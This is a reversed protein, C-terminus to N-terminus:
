CDAESLLYKLSHGRLYLLIQSRVHVEKLSKKFICQKVKVFISKNNVDCTSIYSPIWSAQLVRIKMMSFVINRIILICWLIHIYKSIHKTIMKGQYIASM